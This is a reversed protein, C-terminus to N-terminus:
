LCVVSNMFAIWDLEKEKGAQGHFGSQENWISTIKELLIEGFNVGLM